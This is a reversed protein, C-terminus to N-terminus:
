LACQQVLTSLGKTVIMDPQLLFSICLSVSHCCMMVLAVNELSAFGSEITTSGDDNINNNM